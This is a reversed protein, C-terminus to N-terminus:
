DEYEYDPNPPDLRVFRGIESYAGALSSDPPELVRCFTTTRPRAAQDEYRVFGLAYVLSKGDRIASNDDDSIPMTHEKLIAIDNDPPLDASSGSQLSPDTLVVVSYGYQPVAPLHKSKQLILLRASYETIKAPTIGVNVVQARVAIKEGGWLEGEAWVHRVRIRPRHTSIFEENMARVTRRMYIAQAVFAILQLLALGALTATLKIMWWDASSKELREKKDDESEEPTKGTNQLRVVVPSKESGRENAAAPKANSSSKQPPQQSNAIGVVFVLSLLLWRM